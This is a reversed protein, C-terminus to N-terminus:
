CRSGMLGRRGALDVLRHPDVVEVGGYATIILGESTLEGLVRNVSQRSAGLLGAMEEQTLEIRLHTTGAFEDALLALVRDRLDGVTLAVIRRNAHELRRVTNTLWRLAVAPHTSLLDLLSDRALVLVTVASRAVVLYPAPMECLLPIDGIVGGPHHIAILHRDGDRDLYLGIEGREVVYAADATEGPTLLREGTHLDRGQLTQSLAAVDAPSFPALDKRGFRRALWAIHTAMRKSDSPLLRSIASRMDM